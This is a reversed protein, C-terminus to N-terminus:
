WSVSHHSCNSIVTVDKNASIALFIGNRVYKGNRVNRRDQKDEDQAIYSHESKEMDEGVHTIIQWKITVLRSPTLYYRLIVRIQM